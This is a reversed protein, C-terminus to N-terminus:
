VTFFGVANFEIAQLLRVCRVEKLAVRKVSGVAGSQLDIDSSVPPWVSLLGRLQGGNFVEVNCALDPAPGAADLGFHPPFPWRAPAALDAM